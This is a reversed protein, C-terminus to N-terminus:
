KGGITPFFDNQEQQRATDAEAEQLRDSLRAAQNLITQAAQLRTAPNVEQDEMIGTITEIARQLRDNLATVAARITDAKASKYLAQFDGQKMREYIARESLGVAEAAERITGNSILAAIVEENSIAAQKQRSSSM